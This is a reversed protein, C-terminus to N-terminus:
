LCTEAQENEKEKRRGTMEQRDNGKMMMMEWEARKFLLFVL